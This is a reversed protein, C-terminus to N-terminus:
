SMKHITNYSFPQHFSIMTDNSTLDNNVFTLYSLSHGPRESGVDKVALCNSSRKLDM